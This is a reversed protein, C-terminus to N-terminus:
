IDDFTLKEKKVAGEDDTLDSLADSAETRADEDETDADADGDAEDLEMDDDVFEFDAEAAAEPAPTSAPQNPRTPPLPTRIGHAEFYKEARIEQILAEVQDESMSLEEGVMDCVTEVLDLVDASCAEFAESDESSMCVHLRHAPPAAASAQGDIRLDVTPYKRLVHAFHAGGPGAVLERLDQRSSFAAEPLWYKCFGRPASSTHPVAPQPMAPQQPTIPTIPTPEHPLAPMTPPVEPLRPMIPAALAPAPQFHYASAGEPRMSGAKLPMWEVSFGRFPPSVQSETPKSGVRGLEELMSHVKAKAYPLKLGRGMSEAFWAWPYQLYLLLQEDEVQRRVVGRLRSLVEVIIAKPVFTM